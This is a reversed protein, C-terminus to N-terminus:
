LLLLLKYVESHEDKLIEVIFDGTADGSRDNM